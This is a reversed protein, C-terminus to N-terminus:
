RMCHFLVKFEQNRQSQLHPSGHGVEKLIENKKKKFFIHPNLQKLIHSCQIVYLLISAPFLNYPRTDMFM